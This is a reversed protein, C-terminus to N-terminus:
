IKVPWVLTLGKFLTGILLLFSILERPYPRTFVLSLFILLFTFFPLSSSALLLLPSLLLLLLTLGLLFLLSSQYRRQTLSRIQPLLRRCPKKKREKRKKVPRFGSKEGTCGFHSRYPLTKTGALTVTRFISATGALVTRYRRGQYWSRNAHGM